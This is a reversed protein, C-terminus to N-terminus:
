EQSETELLQLLAGVRRDERRVRRFDTLAATFFRDEINEIAKIINQCIMAEPPAAGPFGEVYQIALRIRAVYDSISAMSKCVGSSIQENGLEALKVAEFGYESDIVKVVQRGNGTRVNTSIKMVLTPLHQTATLLAGYLKANIAMLVPPLADGLEDFNATELEEVFLRGPETEFPTHQIVEARMNFRWQWYLSHDESLKLITMKREVLRSERM